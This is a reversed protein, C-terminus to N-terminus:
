FGKVKPFAFVACKNLFHKGTLGAHHFRSQCNLLIWIFLLSKCSHFSSKDERGWTCEYTHIKNALFFNFDERMITDFQADFLYMYKFWSQLQSFYRWLAPVPQVQRSWYITTTTTLSLDPRSNPDHNIPKARKCELIPRKMTPPRMKNPRMWCIRGKELCGRGANHAVKLM